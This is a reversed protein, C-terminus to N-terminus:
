RDTIEFICSRLFEVPEETHAACLFMWDYPNGAYLPEYGCRFLCNEAEEIYIDPLKESDCEDDGIDGLKVPLWFTYFHLLVLIKRIMDYSKSTEIKRQGDKTGLVDSLSKKSPFNVKVVYPLETKKQIGSYTTPLRELVFTNLFVSKNDITELIYSSVSGTTNKTTHADYCIERLLLGYNDFISADIDGLRAGDSSPVSRKKLNRKLKDIDSPTCKGSGTLEALQRSIESFASKNWSGFSVKNDAMFQIFDETETFSSIKDSIFRTYNGMNDPTSPPNGERRNIERILSQADQYTLKHLFCYFFVSEEITHCNFCRDFYVHHFFWETDEISLNLSFCIEYMKARSSAEIKPRHEGTFWSLVTAETTRSGIQQLKGFLCGAKEMNDEKPGCYGARAMLETLGQSFPRFHGPANLYAVADESENVSAFTRTSNEAFKTYKESM